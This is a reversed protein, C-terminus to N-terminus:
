AEDESIEELDDDEFVIQKKNKSGIFKPVLFAGLLFAVGIGLLIWTKLSTRSSTNSDQTTSETPAETAPITGQQQSNPSVVVNSNGSGDQALLSHLDYDDVKNLFYVNDVGDKDAYDVIIYFVNGDKTTVSTFLLQENSFIVKHVESDILSANGDTDYYDDAYYKNPDFKESDDKDLEEIGELYSDKLSEWDVETTTSTTTTTSEEPAANGSLPVISLSLLLAASIAIFNRKM